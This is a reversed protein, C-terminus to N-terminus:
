TRLVEEAMQKGLQGRARCDVGYTGSAKKEYTFVQGASKKEVYVIKGVGGGYTSGPRCIKKRSVCNERDERGYTSGPRCIKAWMVREFIRCVLAGYALWGSVRRNESIVGNPPM